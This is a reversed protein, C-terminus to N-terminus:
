YEINFANGAFLLPQVYDLDARGVPVRYEQKCDAPEQYTLPERLLPAHHPAYVTALQREDCGGREERRVPCALTQKLAASSIVVTADVVVSEDVDDANM